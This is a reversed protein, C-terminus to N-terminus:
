WNGLSIEELKLKALWLIPISSYISHIVSIFSHVFSRVFIEGQAQDM